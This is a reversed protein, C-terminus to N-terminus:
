TKITNVFQKNEETDDLTALLNDISNIYNKIIDKRLQSSKQWSSVDEVESGTIM